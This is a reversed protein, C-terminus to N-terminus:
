KKFYDSIDDIAKYGMSKAIRDMENYDEESARYPITAKLKVAVPDDEVGPIVMKAIEFIVEAPRGERIDRREKFGFIAEEPPLVLKERRRGAEVTLLDDAAAEMLADIDDTHGEVSTLFRGYSGLRVVVLTVAEKPIQVWHDKGGGSGGPRYGDSSGSYDYGGSKRVAEYRHTHRYTVIAEPTCAIVHDEGDIRTIDSM